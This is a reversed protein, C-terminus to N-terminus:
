RGFVSKIALVIRSIILSQATLISIITIGKEHLLIIRKALFTDKGLVREITQRVQMQPDDRNQSLRELRARKKLRWNKWGMNIYSGKNKPILLIMKRDELSKAIM